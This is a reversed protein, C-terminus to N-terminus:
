PRQEHVGSPMQGWGETMDGGAVETDVGPRENVSTQPQKAPLLSSGVTEFRVNTDILASLQLLLFVTIHSVHHPTSQQQTLHSAPSTVRSTM